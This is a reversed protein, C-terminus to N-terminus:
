SSFSSTKRFFERKKKKKKKKKTKQKRNRQSFIIQFSIHSILRILVYLCKLRFCCQLTSFVHRRLVFYSLFRSSFSVFFLLLVFMEMQFLTKSLFVRSSAKKRLGWRNLTWHGKDLAIDVCTFHKCSFPVTSTRTRAERSLLVRQKAVWHPDPM